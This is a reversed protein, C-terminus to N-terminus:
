DPRQEVANPGAECTDGADRFAGLMEEIHHDVLEDEITLASFRACGQCAAQRDRGGSTPQSDAWCRASSARRLIKRTLTTL